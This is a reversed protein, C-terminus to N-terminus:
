VWSRTPVVVRAGTSCPPGRGDGDARIARFAPASMSFRDGGLWRAPLAVPGTPTDVGLHARGDEDVVERHADGLEAMPLVGDESSSRSRAPAPGTDGGWAGTTETVAGDILTLSHEIRTVLLVRRTPFWERPISGSAEVYGLLQDLHTRGLRAVALAWLSGAVPDELARWPRLPRLAVTRGSLIRTEDGDVVVASAQGHARVSRAKLSSASTPTWFRGAQVVGAQMTVHPGTRSIVAYPQFDGQNSPRLVPATM